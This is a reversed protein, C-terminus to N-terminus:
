QGLGGNSGIANGLVGALNGAGTITSNYISNATLGQSIEKVKEFGEGISDPVITKNADALSNDGSQGNEFFRNIDDQDPTYNTGLHVAVDASMYRGNSKDAVSFFTLDVSHIIVSDIIMFKGIRLYIRNKDSIADPGPAYLFAGKRTPTAMKALDRIPKEVDGYTSSYADLLFTFSFEIPETGVWVRRTLYKLSVSVGAAQFAKGITTSAAGEAGGFIPEWHNQLQMNFSEPVFARFSLGSSPQYLEAVYYKTDDVQRARTSLPERRSARSVGQAAQLIAPVAGSSM